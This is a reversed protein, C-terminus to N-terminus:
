EMHDCGERWVGPRCAPFSAHALCVWILWSLAHTIMCNMLKSAGCYLQNSWSLEACCGGFGIIAGVIAHTSSVAFQLHALSSVVLYCPPISAAHSSPSCQDMGLLLFRDDASM